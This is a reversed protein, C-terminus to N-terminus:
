EGLEGEEWDDDDPDSICFVTRSENGIVNTVVEAITVARGDAMEVPMDDDVGELVDRLDGVSMPFYHLHDLLFRGDNAVAAVNVEEGDDVVVEMEDGSLLPAPVSVACAAGLKERLERVKMTAKESHELGQKEEQAQLESDLCLIRFEGKEEIVQTGVVATTEHFIVDMVDPLSELRERLEHVNM